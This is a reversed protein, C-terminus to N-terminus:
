SRVYTWFRELASTNVVFEAEDDPGNGFLAAVLAQLALSASLQERHTDEVKGFYLELVRAAVEPSEADYCYRSFDMFPSMMAATEYDIAMVGKSTIALNQPNLDGHGSVLGSYSEVIQCLGLRRLEDIAQQLPSDIREEKTRREAWYNVRTALSKEAKLKPGQHITKTVGVLSAIFEEEHWDSEEPHRMSLLDMCLFAENAAYVRPAVGQSAAHGHLSYEDEHVGTAPDNKINNLRLAKWKGGDLVRYIANFNGQGILKPEPNEAAIGLESLADHLKEELTM